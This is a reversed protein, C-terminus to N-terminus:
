EGDVEVPVLVEQATAAGSTVTRYVLYGHVLQGSFTILAGILALVGFFSVADLTQTFGEGTNVYSGGYTGGVWTFGSVLGSMWLSASTLIVGM